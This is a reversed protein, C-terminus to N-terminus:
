FSLGRRKKRHRWNEMKMIICTVDCLYPDSTVITMFTALVHNFISYCTKQQQNYYCYWLIVFPFALYAPQKLRNGEVYPTTILKAFSNIYNRSYLEIKFLFRM